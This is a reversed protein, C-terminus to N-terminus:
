ATDDASILVPRIGGCPGADERAIDLAEVPPALAGAPNDRDVANKGGEAHAKGVPLARGEHQRRAGALALHDLVEAMEPRGGLAEGAPGAIREVGRQDRAHFAHAIASMGAKVGTWRRVPKRPEPLVVSSFRRS